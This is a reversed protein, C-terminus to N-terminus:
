ATGLRFLRNIFCKASHAILFSVGDKSGDPLLSWLRSFPAVECTFRYRFTKVLLVEPIPSSTFFFKTKSHLVKIAYFRSSFVQTKTSWKKAFFHDPRLPDFGRSEAGLASASLWQAVGRHWKLLISGNKHFILATDTIKWSGSHFIKRICRLSCGLKRVSFFKM